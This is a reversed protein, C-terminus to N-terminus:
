MESLHKIGDKAVFDLQLTQMQSLIQALELWLHNTIKESLVLMHLMSWNAKGMQVKGQNVSKTVSNEFTDADLCFQDFLDSPAGCMFVISPSPTVSLIELSLESVCSFNTLFFDEFSDDIFYGTTNYIKCTTSRKPITQCLRYSVHMLQAGLSEFAFRFNGSTTVNWM